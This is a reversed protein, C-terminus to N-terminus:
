ISRVVFSLQQLTGDGQFPFSATVTTGEAARLDYPDRALSEDVVEEDQQKLDSGVETSAQLEAGSVM